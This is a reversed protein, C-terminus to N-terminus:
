IGDINTANRRVTTSRAGNGFYQLKLSLSGYFLLRTQMLEQPFYGVDMGGCAKWQHNELSTSIKTDNHITREYQIQM